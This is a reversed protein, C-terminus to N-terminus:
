RRHQVLAGPCMGQAAVWSSKCVCAGGLHYKMVRSDIPPTMLMRALPAVLEAAPDRRRTAEHEMFYLGLRATVGDEAISVHKMNDCAYQTVSSVLLNPAFLLSINSTPQLPHSRLM